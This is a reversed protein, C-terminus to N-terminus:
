HYPSWRSRCEKGVRREESRDADPDTVTISVGSLPPSIKGEIFRGTRAVFGEVAATCSTLDTPVVFVRERPYALVDSGAVVPSVRVSEGASALFEYSIKNGDGTTSVVSEAGTSSVIRVSIGHNQTHNKKGEKYEIEGSVRYKTVELQIPSATTTTVEFANKAFEFCGTATVDYVGHRKLVCLDSAGATDTTVSGSDSKDDKTTRLAYQLTVGSHTAIASLTYASQKFAVPAVKADEGVTVSVTSEEFCWGDRSVSAEYIGPLVKPVHFTTGDNELSVTVKDQSNGSKRLSVTVAGDCPTEICKVKGSVTRVVQAFTVDLVPRDRVVITQAEPTFRIGAKREEDSVEITAQYAGPFVELLCFSGDAGVKATATGKSASTLAVTRTVQTGVGGLSVTGCVDYAVARIVPVVPDSPAIRQAALSSFMYHEKIASIKYSGASMGPLVYNNNNSSGEAGVTTKSTEEDNVLISVDAVNNGSGDVVRGSASFGTVRLAQQLAVSSAGEVSVAIEAPVVDFRTSTAAHYYHPRLTFKGCPVDSLVFSGDAASEAHCSAPRGDSPSVPATKPVVGSGCKVVKGDSKGNNDFLLLSVGAVAEGDSTLVRGSVDYGAVKFVHDVVLGSWGVTVVTSSPAAISWSSHSASLTYVGPLVNDFKYSGDVESAVEKTPIDATPSALSVLVGPVRDSSACRGATNDVSVSGSVAFGSVDFNLDQGENCTAATVVVPVEDKDFSWSAPGKVRVVFSGQEYVPMYYYGNPSCETTDKVVGSPSVLSVSVTSYDPLTSSADNFNLRVFGGCGVVQDSALAPTSAVIAIFLLVSLFMMVVPSSSSM